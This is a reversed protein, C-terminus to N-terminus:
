FASQRTMFPPVSVPDGIAFFSRCSRLKRLLFCCVGFLFNFSRFSCGLYTIVFLFTRHPPPAAQVEVIYHGDVPDRRIRLPQGNVEGYKACPADRAHDPNNLWKELRKLSWPRVVIATQAIAWSGQELKVRWWFGSVLIVNHQAFVCRERIARSVRYHGDVEVFFRRLRDPAVDHVISKPYVGARAKEIGAGNLDTAFLQLPVSSPLAEAFEAYAIALSYAEEGTSCGLVWMRLPDNRTREKVLRPFIKQKLSEFLEPNRFFSTVNILIDQYLTELEKPNEQLFQVYDNLDEKKQLVM